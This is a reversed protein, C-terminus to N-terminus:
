QYGQLLHETLSQAQRDATFGSIVKLRCINRGQFRRACETLFVLRLSTCDHRVMDSQKPIETMNRKWNKVKTKSTTQKVTKKRCTSCKCIHLWYTHLLNSFLGTYRYELTRQCSHLQAVSLRLLYNASALIGSSVERVKGPIYVVWYWSANSDRSFSFDSKAVNSGLVCLFPKTGLVEWGFPSSM